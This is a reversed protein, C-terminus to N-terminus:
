LAGATLVTGVRLKKKATMQLKRVMPVPLALLAIDSIINCFGHIGIVNYAKPYCHTKPDLYLKVDWNIEIPHCSFILLLLTVTSYVVLFFGMLWFAIRFMREVHFIRYLFLLISVKVLMTGIVYFYGGVAATQDKM